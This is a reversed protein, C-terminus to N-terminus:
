SLTGGAPPLRRELADARATAQRVLEKVEEVRQGAAALEKLTAASAALESARLAMLYLVRACLAEVGSMKKALKHQEECLPLAAHRSLSAYERCLASVNRPHLSPLGTTGTPRSSFLVSRLTPPKVIWIERSPAAQPGNVCRSSSPLPGVM